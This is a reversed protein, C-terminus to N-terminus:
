RHAESLVDLQRDRNTFIDVQYCENSMTPLIDALTYLTVHHILGRGDLRGGTLDIFSGTFM